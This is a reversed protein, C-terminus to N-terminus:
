ADGWAHRVQKWNGFAASELDDVNLIDAGADLLIQWVYNRLSTPWAPTDWYRAKLGKEKATRIQSRLTNLQKSSLKGALVKGITKELSVSAYYSSSTNWSSSGRAADSLRDLPADFFMDRHIEGIELETANLSTPANGSLVVTVPRSHFNQGDWFSLYNGERLSQLSANVYPLLTNGDQKFDLLLVLTQNPATGFVGSCSSNGHSCVTANANQQELLAKIPRLYLSDLTRERRLSAGNHGVYLDTGNEGLSQPLWIDAEVSACGAHLADFLPVTRWYDNHSHCPIPVVNQTPASQCAPSNCPLLSQRHSWYSAGWHDLSTHGAAVLIIHVLGLIALLTLPLFVVSRWLRRRRRDSTKSSAQSEAHGLSNM